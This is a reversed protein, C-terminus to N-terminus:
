RAPRSPDAGPAVEGRPEPEAEGPPVREAEGPARNRGWRPCRNQRRERGPGRRRDWRRRRSSARPGEGDDSHEHDANARRRGEEQKSVALRAVRVLPVSTHEREDLEHLLLALQGELVGDLHVEEVLVLPLLVLVDVLLLEISSSASSISLM